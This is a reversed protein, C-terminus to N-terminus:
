SLADSAGIAAVIAPVADTAQTRLSFDAYDTAASPEPNVEVTLRGARQAVAMPEIIYPFLASTGVMLVLDPVHEYFSRRLRQVEDGPLMEGFLVVDPRLNAGCGCLPLSEWGHGCQQVDGCAACRVRFANGHIEIVNSNGARQHLGDVNQTLLVFSAARSELSVLALHAANPQAEAAARALQRVVEWTRAPDRALMGASLAEVAQRGATPDDYLGGRGRYTQVGSEASIGAGTVVGVTRVRQLRQRLAPPLM